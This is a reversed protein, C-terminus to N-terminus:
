QSNAFDKKAAAKALVRSAEVPVTQVGNIIWDPTTDYLACLESMERPNPSGKGSEWKSVTQRAVRLAKAVDEQRYGAKKRAETLRERIAKGVATEM